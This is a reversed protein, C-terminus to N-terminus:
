GNQLISQSRRHSAVKDLFGALVTWGAKNWVALLSQALKHRKFGMLEVAKLAIYEASVEFAKV